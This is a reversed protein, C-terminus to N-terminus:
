SPNQCFLENELPFNKDQAIFFNFHYAAAAVLLAANLEQTDM